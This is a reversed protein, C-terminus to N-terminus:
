EIYHTKTTIGTLNWKVRNTTMQWIVNCWYNQNHEIVAVSHGVQTLRSGSFDVTNILWLTAGGENLNRYSGRMHSSGWCFFNDEQLNFVFHTKKINPQCVTFTEFTCSSTQRFPIQYPILERFCTQLILAVYQTYNGM